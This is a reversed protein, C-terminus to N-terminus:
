GRANIEHQNKLTMEIKVIVTRHSAIHWAGLCWTMSFVRARFAAGLIATVTFKGHGTNPEGTSM